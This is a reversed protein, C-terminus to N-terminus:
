KKNMHEMSAPSKSPTARIREWLAYKKVLGIAFIMVTLVVVAGAVPGKKGEIGLPYTGELVKIMVNDRKGYNIHVLADRNQELNTNSLTTIFIAVAEGGVDILEPVDMILVKKEGYITLDIRTKVYVPVDGINQILVKLKHEEIDYVVKKVVIASTDVEKILGIDMNKRFAHDLSKPAEGFHTTIEMSLTRSDSVYENLDVPYAIPISGGSEVFVVDEDGITAVHEEDAYIAISSKLYTDVDAKNEYIVELDNSAINYNVPLIDLDLENKPIQFIDLAAVGGANGAGANGQAFKIFIFMGTADKLRKASGTLENGILVGTSVNNDKVYRIVQPPVDNEGIFIVPEDGAMLSSEISDGNTLLVQKTPEIQMYKEVIALNDDFKSGTNIVDPTFEELKQRVEYDLHGYLTLNETGTTKLFSYIRNINEKDAFLVFSRSKIAYPAVSVANYGYSGDIIIFNSVESMGALELNTDTLDTSKLVTVTYGNVELRNKYYMAYPVRDSEILYVDTLRNNLLPIIGTSYEESLIFKSPVESLEAYLIGSYVDQWNASNIIVQDVVEASSTNVSLILLFIIM